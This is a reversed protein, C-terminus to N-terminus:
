CLDAMRDQFLNSYCGELFFVMQVKNLYSELKEWASKEDTRIPTTLVNIHHLSLLQKIEAIKTPPLGNIAETYPILVNQIEPAFKSIHTAITEASPEARTIGTITFGPKDLCTILGRGVPDRVGLFIMPHGGIEEVVEKAAFSCAEGVTMIVDYTDKIILERVRHKIGEKDQMLPIFSPQYLDPVGADFQTFLLKRMALHYPRGHLILIAVRCKKTIGYM